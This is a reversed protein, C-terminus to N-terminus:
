FIEESTATTDSNGDNNTVHTDENSATEPESESLETETAEPLPTVDDNNTVKDAEDANTIAGEGAQKAKPDPSINQKPTDNKPASSEPPNMMKEKKYCCTRNATTKLKTVYLGVFFAPRMRGAKLM